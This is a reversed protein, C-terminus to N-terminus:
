PKRLILTMVAGVVAVLILGVMGYVLKRIPEFEDKTVYNKDIKDTLVDISKRVYGLDNAMLAIQTNESETRTSSNPQTM